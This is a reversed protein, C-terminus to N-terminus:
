GERHDSRTRGPLKRAAEELAKLADQEGEAQGRSAPGIAGEDKPLPAPVNPAKEKVPGELNHLM